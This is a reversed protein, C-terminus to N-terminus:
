RELTLLKFRREANFLFTENFVWPRPLRSVDGFPAARRVADIATQITDKAQRPERLVEIRRVSGDAHLEVKLVPVALLPEPPPGDYVAGPQAAVIRQAAQRRLEDLSRPTAPPPLGRAAPPAAPPLERPPAAPPPPAPQRAPSRDVVPSPAVPPASACGAFLLVLGAWPLARLLREPRYPM